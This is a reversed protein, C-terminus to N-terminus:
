QKQLGKSITKLTEDRLNKDGMIKVFDSIRGERELFSFIKISEDTAKAEGRALGRAEGKALGRAEGREEAEKAAVEIAREWNWEAYLM